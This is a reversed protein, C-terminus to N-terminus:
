KICKKIQIKNEERRKEERRKEENVKNALDNCLFLARDTSLGGNLQILMVRFVISSM